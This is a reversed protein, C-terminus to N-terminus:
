IVTEFGHVTLRFLVTHGDSARVLADAIKRRM